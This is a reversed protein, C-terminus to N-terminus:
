RIRIFDGNIGSLRMASRGNVTVFEITSGYAHGQKNSEELISNHAILDSRIARAEEDTYGSIMFKDMDYSLQLTAKHINWAGSVSWQKGKATKMDTISNLYYFTGDAQFTFGISTTTDDYSHNLQWMGLIQNTYLADNETADDNCSPLVLVIAAFLLTLLKKM